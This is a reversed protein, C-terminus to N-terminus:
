AAEAHRESPLASLLLRVVDAAAKPRAVRALAGALSTRVGADQLLPLMSDALKDDLRGGVARTDIMVAAGAKAFWAANQRQHDETAKAYPVLVAPVQLAALEALTSGGARSVALEAGSLVTPLDDIFPTVTASMALKQYLRQTTERGHDGCQHIIEWDTLWPRVKYLAKPV